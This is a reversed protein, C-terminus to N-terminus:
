FEQHHQLVYYIFDARVLKFILDSYLKILFYKLSNLNYKHIENTACPIINFRPASEIYSWAVKFPSRHSTFLPHHLFEDIPDIFSNYICIYTVSFKLYVPGRSKDKKILHFQM